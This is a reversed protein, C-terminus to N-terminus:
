WIYRERWKGGFIMRGQPSLHRKFKTWPVFVVVNTLHFLGPVPVAYHFNLGSSKGDVTSPALSIPAIGDLSPRLTGILSAAKDKGIQGTLGSTAEALLQTMTSGGDATESFFGALGIRKNTKSDWLFTTTEIANYVGDIDTASMRIVSFYRSNGVISSLDYRRGFTPPEGPPTSSKSKEDAEVAKAWDRTEQRCDASLAANERLRDGLFMFVSAYDGRVSVDAPLDWASASPLYVIAFLAFGAVVASKM